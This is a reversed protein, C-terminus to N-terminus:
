NIGGGVGGFVSTASSGFTGADQTDGFADSVRLLPNLSTNTNVLGATGTVYLGNPAGAIFDNRQPASMPELKYKPNPPEPSEPPKDPRWPLEPQEVKPPGCADDIIKQFQDEIKSIEVLPPWLNAKGHVLKVIRPVRPPDYVLRWVKPNGAFHRQWL